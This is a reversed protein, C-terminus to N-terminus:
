NQSSNQQEVEERLRAIDAQAQAARAEAVEARRIALDADAQAQAIRAEAVEARRTALDADARAEAADARAAETEDKSETLTM